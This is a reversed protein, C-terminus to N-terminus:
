WRDDSPCGSVLNGTRRIAYVEEQDGLRTSREALIPGNPITGYAHRITLESEKDLSKVSLYLKAPSGNEPASKIARLAGGKKEWLGSEFSRYQSRRNRPAFAFPIGADVLNGERTRKTETKPLM